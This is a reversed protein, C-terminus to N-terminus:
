AQGIIEHLCPRLLRAVEEAHAANLMTVHNGSTRVVHVSETTLHQWGLSEHALVEDSGSPYDLRQADTARFLTIPVDAPAAKYARHARIHAKSVKLLNRILKQEEGPPLGRASKLASVVLEIQDDSSLGALETESVEIEKGLFRGITEVMAALRLADERREDGPALENSMVPAVSDFMGLFAVTEGQERLQRAIEFAIVGGLSHGALLYPGAPQAGRIEALYDTAMQELSDHPEDDGNLGRAQIGYVTLTPPLHHLLHVYNLLTGGGPHILFLRYRPDADRLTVLLPWVATDRRLVAALHEITPEEFLAPLPVKRDLQREVEVLLRLALLSHGGLDFFRDTVGIPHMDLLAEWIQVLRLEIADRPAVYRSELAPRARPPPPLRERDVKQNATLPLADLFVFASPVMASPLRQGLLDQLRGVNEAAGVRLVVYAVLIPGETGDDRAIVVCAAVDPSSQLVVAVETPEVRVGRIKVQDDIRGRFELLGDAGIVGRDGTLYILDAADERFPNPLFRKANEEPANLYGRSRFPTRLAIEGPEGVGCLARQPTLVLVQTEPLPTGLPQVGARPVPPVRYFCKALTTETPGYLNVIEGAAPFAERWRAVLAATLPEGAFLTRRLAALTVDQPPNLLWTSAVAPVTHILSIRERELWRLTEEGAATDNELPLVLTAGSTLPLFVDRLVVDFSLGTLQSCRDDPRVEFTSREWALWHALGAHTGVVAKPKGASGSTFFVYAPDNTAEVPTGAAFDDDRQALPQIASVAIYTLGDLERLWADTNGDGACLLWRAGAEALMVRQRQEPLDRSLTLLVGGAALTAAMSAIVDFGRPGAVAVVEGRLLGRSRLEAAIAAIRDGFAAYSLVESGRCIAPREGERVCWSAISRVVPEQPPADLPQSPDALVARSHPTVLDLSGVRTGADDSVQRLIAVYQELFCAMRAESYRQRRYRLDLQLSGDWDTVFLQTSFEEILAPPDLLTATLGPLDIRRPASPTFNFITEYLPHVNASRDLDLDQVVREIPVDAHELAELVTARVVAIAERFTLRPSVKARIALTNLFLGILPECEVRTRGSVPSGVLLDERGTCRMLLALFATLLTVFLTTNQDRSLADLRERLPRDILIAATAADHDRTASPSSSHLVSDPELELVPPLDALQRRWYALGADLAGADLRARQWGAFDGYQIGLEPLIPRRSQVAAAYLEAIENMLVGISWGDSAIHHMTVLLVHAGADLRLLRARVLLDNTLDFGRVIEEAYRRQWATERESPVLHSLDIVEIPVSMAPRVTQEPRGNTDHFSARLTEHRRVIAEFTTALAERSLTGDLRLAGSINHAVGAFLHDRFWEREQAFSLSVAAVEVGRAVLEPARAGARKREKLRRLLEDRQEPSLDKVLKKVEKAAAKAQTKLQEKVEGKVTKAASKLRDDSM